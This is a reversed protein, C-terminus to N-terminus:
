EYSLILSPYSLLQGFLVLDSLWWSRPLVVIGPLHLNGRGGNCHVAASQFLSRAHIHVPLLSRQPLSHVFQTCGCVSVSRERQSSSRLLLEFIPLYCRNQSSKKPVVHWCQKGQHLMSSYDATTRLGQLMLLVAAHVPNHCGWTTILGFLPPLAGAQLSPIIDRLDLELCSYILLAWWLDGHINVLFSSGIM